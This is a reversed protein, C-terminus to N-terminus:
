WVVDSAGKRSASIWPPRWENLRSPGKQFRQGIGGFDADPGNAFRPADDDTIPWHYTSAQTAWASARFHAQPFRRCTRIIRSCREGVATRCVSVPYGRSIRHARDQDHFVLRVDGIEHLVVQLPFPQSGARHAVPLLCQIQNNAIM